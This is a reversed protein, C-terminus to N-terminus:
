RFSEEIASQDILSQVERLRFVRPPLVQFYIRRRRPRFFGLAIKFLQFRLILFCLCSSSIEM